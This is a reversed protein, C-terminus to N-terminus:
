LYIIHPYKNLPEYRNTLCAANCFLVHRTNSVRRLEVAWNDHIHGYVNLQLNSLKKIRDLLDKCGVNPDENPRAYEKVDDLIGYPPTHTILINTNKPIKSWVKKIDEGRNRNWAWGYGFSPSVPSGWINLGEIEVGNNELYHIHDPLSDLLDKTKLYLERELIEEYSMSFNSTHKHYRAPDTYIDHNGAVFCIHKAPITRLWELFSVTDALSGRNTFDGAYLFLDIEEPFEILNHFTHTDSLMAIKM